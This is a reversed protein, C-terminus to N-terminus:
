RKQLDLLVPLHDSFGGRYRYGRYTSFPSYGPFSPDKVLLFDPSFIRFMPKSTYLGNPSKLLWESVMIQDFMEWIGNYRYTGKFSSSHDAALNIINGSVLGSDTETIGCILKVASDDPNCNFDGAIIIKVRSDAERQLSDVIERVMQSLSLRLEENALVGGRRSPWHNVLFHLTDTDARFWAHLVSRTSFNVTDAKSPIRYNYGLLHIVQKRYIMCVDIGREDPSDEHIIGWDFRSLPTKYILDEVVRRNEVECFSVLAPPTWEGAATIVKYLSNLKGSYRSFNWRRLGSPLFEEDNTLTDDYIDFLNETNYFMFRLVPEQGFFADLQLITLVATIFTRYIWIKFHTLGDTGAHM